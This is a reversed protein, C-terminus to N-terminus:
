KDGNKSSKPPQSRTLNNIKNEKECMVKIPLMIIGGVIIFVGSVYFAVSYGYLDKLVSVGPASILCGLGIFVLVIGTANTLNDLGYLSVIVVSRLCTATSAFFGYMFCYFYQYYLNYSLDSIINSLGAIFMSVIYVNIPEVKCALGGLVLRGVANALAIVSVFFACHKPDIGAELNKHQTFIYPAILGVNISFGALCLCIFSKRRLLKPDMMTALVRRVATTFIGRKEGLDGATAARSVALQYELGTKSADTAMKSKQYAPLKELNGEYFVDDRYMPRSQPVHKEWHCLRGWCSSKKSEVTVEIEVPPPKSKDQLVSSKSMISKVQKLQRQSIGGQPANATLTLKSVPATSPGPQAASTRIDPSDEVLAAATPFNSNSVASFLRETATPELIKDDTKTRSAALKLGAASVNPLYTVTRTQDDTTKVVTFSLVPRFAMGFFYTLGLLGSHLLTTTRWGSLKVFYSNLPYFGMIGISSGCSAIALALSRLKDFYFGVILGCAMNILCYGFGALAGYFICLTMFNRAFYSMFLSISSLVSGSMICARFGFRNIFASALPGAIYYVALALSNLFNTLSFSVSLDISIDSMLSGFTFVIGDLILVSIFSAAVVVWGWCSEEPVVIQAAIETEEGGELKDPRSVVRSPATLVNKPTETKVLIPKPPTKEKNM